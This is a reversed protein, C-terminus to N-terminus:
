DPLEALDAGNHSALYQYNWHDISDVLFHVSGDGFVFNCGGTHNSKFALETSWNCPRGCPDSANDDCSDYNMPVQTSVLGNGNNSFAWGQRIHASCDRRVEGFYITNSLGDTCDASTTPLGLRNFPGSINSRNEYPSLAYQNWSNNCRCAPSDIHATSGNSAAYNHVARGNRLGSNNDAPCVYTAVIRSGILSGDPFTQGDVQRTFDFADFLPRQEIQPLMHVLASGRNTPSGNTSAWFSGPPFSGAAEHYVNLAIGIQRLNNACQMRLAASRASQIAPLLLAVLIGIIAIVVLLEVLTFGRSRSSPHHSM